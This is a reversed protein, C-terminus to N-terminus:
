ERRLADIPNIKTARRAPLYAVVLGVAAMFGTLSLVLWLPVAFLQFTTTVGRSRALQLMVANAIQGGLIAFGIGVLAGVVSLFLAEIIFLKSMDNNRAGMAMMLGIEKTRELLSITLTNFMGLVAVVMSISGFGVLMINFFGFIQNVQDITDSPSSSQFSLSEVQKRIGPINKADDALLQVQSYAPVGALDFHFSPIYVVSGSKDEVIGVVTYENDFKDKKAGVNKLPVLLRVKQNLAAKGTKFGISKAAAENVLIAKNDEKTLLRGAGVKLANMSQYIEDIGYTITDVSGGKRSLSGPFSYSKAVETIHPLNSMREVMVQDLKIIRSNTTTVDITKVSSSGVIQKTVLDQVGLGFSLLFFISGIGIVVGTITLLSRLKKTIINRWAMYILIRWQIHTYKRKSIAAQAKKDM